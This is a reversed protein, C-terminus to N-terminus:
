QRSPTCLPSNCFARDFWVGQRALADLNPTARHPDGAIGLYEGGHDDAIILLLNPGAAGAPLPEARLRAPPSLGLLALSLIAFVARSYPHTMTPAEAMM